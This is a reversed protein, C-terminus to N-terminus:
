LVCREVAVEFGMVLLPMRDRWSVDGVGQLMSSFADLLVSANLGAQQAAAGQTWTPGSDEEARTDVFVVDLEESSPLGIGHEAAKANLGGGVRMMQGLLHEIMAGAGEGWAGMVFWVRKLAVSGCVHM